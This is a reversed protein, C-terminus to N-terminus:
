RMADASPPLAVTWVEPIEPALAVRFGITGDSEYRSASHRTASRCLAKSSKWGGGRLVKFVGSAAGHPDRQEGNAYDGKWDLCWEWVNGHMDYLGWGNAQWAAVSRTSRSNHEYVAMNNVEGAFEGDTGARCAYEWEAESPLRYVYGRPLRDGQGEVRNLWTCFAVANLWSVYCVPFDDGGSIDSRGKLHLLFLNNADRNGDYRTEKLFQRYHRNTVETQALWFPRSLTVGHVPREDQRGTTSGMTFKGAALPSM